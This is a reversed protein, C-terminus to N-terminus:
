VLKRCVPVEVRYDHPQMDPHAVPLDKKRVEEIDEGKHNIPFPSGSNGNIRPDPCGRQAAHNLAQVRAATSMLEDIQSPFESLDSRLIVKGSSFDTTFTDSVVHLAM